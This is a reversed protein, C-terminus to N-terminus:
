GAVWFQVFDRPSSGRQVSFETLTLTTKDPAPFFKAQWGIEPAGQQSFSPAPFGASREQIIQSPSYIELTVYSAHSSSVSMLAPIHLSLSSGM